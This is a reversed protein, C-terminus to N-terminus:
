PMLFPLVKHRVEVEVPGYGVFEGDMDITCEEITEIKCKKSQLYTVEPHDIIEGRRVAGLYKFYDFLSVNGLLVLQLLGDDPVAQPAICMGSGFFKGNAMVLLLIKGEWSFNDATIKVKRHKYTLFTTIISKAYSLNAGLIKSSKNVRQSVYGGIGIDAINIYHRHTSQRQENLYHMHCLDLPTPSKALLDKLKLLDANVGITKSFDNGTGKPFVGVASSFKIKDNCQMFGNAVENLLGDGGVAIVREAGEDFARKTLDKAHGSHHTEFFVPQYQPSFFKQIQSQLKLKERLKGHLIFAVKM